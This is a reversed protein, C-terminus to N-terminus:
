NAQIILDNHSKSLTYSFEKASPSVIKIYNYSNLKQGTYSEDSSDTDFSNKLVLCTLLEYNGKEETSGYIYFVCPANFQSHAQIKINDKFKGKIESLNFTQTSEVKADSIDAKDLFFIYLDDHRKSIVYNFETDASTQVAFYRFSKIKKNCKLSDTDGPERLFGNAIKNWSNDKYGYVTVEFSPVSSINKTKISDKAKGSFENADFVFAKGDTFAPLDEAFTAPVLLTALLIATLLFKKM